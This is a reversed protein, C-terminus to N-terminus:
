LGSSLGASSAKDAGKANRSIEWSHDRTVLIEEGDTVGFIQNGIPEGYRGLSGNYQKALKVPLDRTNIDTGGLLKTFQAWDGNDAAQQLDSLLGLPATQVRRLERWSTVTPGGFQQFQRIKHASAWASVRSSAIKANGGDIDSDLHEGDINKSIYKAIYGVGTGIAWDILVFKCRHLKAGKENGNDQLAYKLFIAKLIELHTTQTYLVLHWHPTGDHQPEAVRFGYVHIGAHKLQARIRAWLTCLYNQAQRPTTGDFKINRDGSKAFRPHMRSPCTLTIFLCSHDCAQATVDFGHLRAMLECRRNKPNSVSLAALEALSYSQGEENIAYLAELLAQNRIRQRKVIKYSADSIYKGKYAQVMGANIAANEFQELYKGRAQRAWWRKDSVRALAGSLSIKGDVIPPEFGNKKLIKTILAYAAHQNKSIQVITKCKKAQDEIFDKFKCDDEIITFEKDKFLQSFNLLYLNADRRSQSKWLGIYTRAAPLQFLHPILAFQKKRWKRDDGAPDSYKWTIQEAQPLLDFLIPKYGRM